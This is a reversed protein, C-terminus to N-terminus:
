FLGGLQIIFRSPPTGCVCETDRPDIPSLSLSLNYILSKKKM